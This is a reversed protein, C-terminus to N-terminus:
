RSARAPSASSGWRRAPARHRAITAPSAGARLAGDVACGVTLDERGRCSARDDRQMAARRAQELREGLFNFAVVVVRHLAGASLSELPYGQLLGTKGESVMVGWDAQPPQVGLGLFSIAALDVMAFGFFITGQAVILPSTPCCTACASGGAGFGQM